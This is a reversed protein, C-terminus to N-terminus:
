RRPQGRGRGLGGGCAPSPLACLARTPASRRAPRHRYERARAFGLIDRAAKDRQPAIVQRRQRGVRLGGLRDAAPEPEKRRRHRIQRRTLGASWAGSSRRSVGRGSGACRALAISNHSVERPAKVLELRPDGSELRRAAGRARGRSRVGRCQDPRRRARGRAAAGRGPNQRQGRLRGGADTGGARTAPAPPM